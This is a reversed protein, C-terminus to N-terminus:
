YRILIRFVKMIVQIGHGPNRIFKKLTAKPNKFYELISIISYTSCTDKALVKLEEPTFDLTKILGTGAVQTGESLARPTLKQTLYGKTKCIKYLNTGYLPTAILLEMNVKFKKKLMIAFDLTQKINDKTEGPLGIVYFASLPINLERCMKAIKIVDELRIGKNIVNDLIFQNGSEIGIILHVCGTKKMKQLIDISLGNVRIGNPTDWYFNINKEILYDLITEFRKMDVTLNDDEFHIHEIRYNNIVHEIHKIIYEASHSRWKRGMHLHISCFICKYPCGRSTIMSIERMFNTSRYCYKQPNLYKEMDVLHYAPFPLADLNCIYSRKPNLLIEEGRRYAIGEIESIQKRGEFYRMIDLTTYEGEGIVAIDISKAYKLLETTQVSSHPGGIITLIGKNLYKVIDTVKIANDLQATFPCTVGVIDPKRQEIEKSIMEWTMGYQKADGEKRPPIDAALADLIEVEYGEKELVAAIYMIGLPVGFMYEQSHRFYTQPPNILLIKKNNASIM